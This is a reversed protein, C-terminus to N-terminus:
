VPSRPHWAARYRWCQVEWQSTDRPLHFLQKSHASICGGHELRLGVRYGNPCTRPKILRAEPCHPCHVGLEPM